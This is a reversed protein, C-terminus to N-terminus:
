WLEYTNNKILDEIFIEEIDFSNNANFIDKTNILDDFRNKYTYYKSIPKKYNMYNCIIELQDVRNKYFVLFNIKKNISNKISGKLYVYKHTNNDYIRKSYVFGLSFALDEIQKIINRDNNVWVKKNLLDGSNM